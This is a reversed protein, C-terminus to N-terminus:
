ATAQKAPAGCYVSQSKIGSAGQFCHLLYRSIGDPALDKHLDWHCPGVSVQRFSGQQGKGVRGGTKHPVAPINRQSNGVRADHTDTNPPYPPKEQWSDARQLHSLTDPIVSEQLM